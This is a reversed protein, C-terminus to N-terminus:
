HRSVVLVRFTGPKYAHHEGPPPTMPTATPLYMTGTAEDIAGTRAGKATAISGVVHAGHAGDLAVVTLVGSGGCPIYARRKATDMIVADPGRGIDLLHTVKMTRADVVAAKGNACASILQETKADYGLGTPGTCGTLAITPGPKGTAVDATEIVNHDENNIFLRGGSVFQPFELGSMLPVTHVVKRAAVDIISATGGDSNMVAALGTAPDYIAGDPDADVPISAVQQQTGTDFLRVTKDHGSTVLLLSTGTIPVVAHAHAISGFSSVRDGDDVAISLVKDDHAVYVHHNAPDFSAYDWGGDPAAIQRTVSYAPTSTTGAIAAGAAAVCSASAALALSAFRSLRM